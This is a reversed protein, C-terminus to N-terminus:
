NEGERGGEVTELEGLEGLLLELSRAETNTIDFIQKLFAANQERTIYV